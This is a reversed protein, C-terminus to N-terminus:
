MLLSDALHKPKSIAVSEVAVSEPEGNKLVEVTDLDILNGEKALSKSKTKNRSRKEKRDKRKKKKRRQDNGEGAAINSEDFAGDFAAELRNNYTRLKVDRSVEDESLNLGLPNEEATVIPAEASLKGSEYKVGSREGHSDVAHLSSTNSKGPADNSSANLYFASEDRHGVEPLGSLLSSSNVSLNSTQTQGLSLNSSAFVAEGFGDSEDDIEDDFENKVGIKKQLYECLSDSGTDLLTTELDLGASIPVKSQARSDVPILMGEFLPILQGRDGPGFDELIARFFSAREQVEAFQSNSLSDIYGVVMRHVENSSENSSYVLVKVSATLVRALGSADLSRKPFSVLIQIASCYDEILNGYEGLIWAANGALSATLVPDANVSKVDKGEKQHLVGNESINSKENEDGEELDSKDVDQEERSTFDEDKSAQSVRLSLLSLVVKVSIPRLVEVRSTLELLQNGIIIQVDHSLLPLEALGGLITTTYWAFDDGTSLMSYGGKSSGSARNFEGAKLLERSLLERYPAEQDLVPSYSAKVSGSSDSVIGSDVVHFGDVSAKRLKRLLIRSIDRLTGKTTFQSVLDLARMRIGIDEDDLCDLVNDRHEVALNPHAQIIKRMSLLGLYKLNQDSEYMFEGLLKACLEVAEPHDMLGLTITSCCEYLLSKARTSRMLATLPEVLKKGLRPELPTLVGMLKVIKILMWNSSEKNMLLQYLVPALSLFSRPSARALESTVTVAACVVTPDSDNLRERFRSSVVSLTDPHVMILRFLVLLAKKRIYPRPSNLLLSVDNELDRGLEETVLKGLCTLAQSCDQLRGNTLDKKFQNTTLLLVDTTPSFSQAAALYGIRKSPFDPSSMVEIIHFYSFAINQGMMQLKTLSM